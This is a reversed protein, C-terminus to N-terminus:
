ILPFTLRFKEILYIVQYFDILDRIAAACAKLTEFNCILLREAEQRTEPRVEAELTVEGM